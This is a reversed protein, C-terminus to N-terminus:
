LVRQKVVPSLDVASGAVHLDACRDHQAAVEPLCGAVPIMIFFIHVRSHDVIHVKRYFRHVARAADEYVLRLWTGVAVQRDAHALEAQYVAMLFGALEVAQHAHAAECLVVCMDEHRRLLDLILDFANYFQDVLYVAEESEFIMYLKGGTRLVAHSAVLVPFHRCVRQSGREVVDSERIHYIFAVAREVSRLDVEMQFVGDSTGPLASGDLKVELKREPEVQLIRARVALLVSRDHDVAHYEARNLPEDSDQDLM